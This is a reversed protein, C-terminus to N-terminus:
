CKILLKQKKWDNKLYKKLTHTEQTDEIWKECVKNNIEKVIKKNGESKKRKKKKLQPKQKHGYTWMKRENM